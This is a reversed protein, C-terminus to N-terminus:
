ARPARGIRGMGGAEAHSLTTTVPALPPQLRQRSLWKRRTSLDAFVSIFAGGVLLGLCRAEVIRLLNGRLKLGEWRGSELAETLSQQALGTKLLDRDSPAASVAADVPDANQLDICEDAELHQKL